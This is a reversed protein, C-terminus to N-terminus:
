MNVYKLQLAKIDSKKTGRWGMTAFNTGTQIVWRMLQWMVAQRV